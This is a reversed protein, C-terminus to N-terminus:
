FIAKLVDYIISGAIGVFLAGWVVRHRLPSSIETDMEVKPFVWRSYSFMIRFINLVIIFVYIYVASQVFPNTHPININAGVRSSLWIAIPIGVFILIVDYTGARHLWDTNTKRQRFFQILNTHIATFWSENDSNIVITSENPTPFTPIQSFDFLPPRSFDLFVTINCLPDFGICAHPVSRTSILISRLREPITQSALFEENNGHVLEGNIGAFTVSTVFSNYARNKRDIFQEETEGPQQSLVTLFKDRYEHQKDNIIKYLRKLDGRKM